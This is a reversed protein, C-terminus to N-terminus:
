RAGSIEVVTGGGNKDGGEIQAQRLWVEVADAGAAAEPPAFVTSVRTVRGASDYTILYRNGPLAGPPPPAESVKARMGNTALVLLCLGPPPNAPIVPLEAPPLAPLVGPSIKAAAEKAPDPLDVRVLQYSPSYRYGPTGAAAIGQQILAQLAPDKSPDERVPFPGAEQAMTKLAQWDEGPPVVILSARREPHRPGGGGVRVRVTAALGATILSVLLIAGLLSMSNGVPLRWQFVLGLRRDRTTRKHRLGFM